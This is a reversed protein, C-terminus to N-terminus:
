VNCITKFKCYKCASESPRNEFPVEPDFIENVLEVIKERFGEFEHYDLCDRFTRDEKIKTFSFGDKKVNKITFIQPIIPEDTKNVISYIHCYFLLQFVGKPWKENEADFLADTDQVRIHETGTKYDIFRLVPVDAGELMVRDVRDIFGKINVKLGPALEFNGAIPYEGAEYTFYEIEEINAEAALVSDVVQTIVTALLAYEGKLSDIKLLHAPLKDADAKKLGYLNERLARVTEREIMSKKTGRLINIDKKRFTRIGNAMENDYLHQLVSHVITGYGSEQIFDKIDDNISYGAVKELFFRLPCEMYTKLYSASLYNGSKPDRFSALTDLIWKADKTVKIEGNDTSNLPYYDIHHIIRANGRKGYVYLLQYIYRSMEGSNGGRADYVMYLRKARGILRYFYYAHVNEMMESDPLGYERRMSMPIFSRLLQKRPLVRENAGLIILNEFDLARTELMGMIQIGELPEGTFHVADTSAIKRLQNLITMMDMAVEHETAYRELTDLGRVYSNAFAAEISDVPSLDRLCVLQARIQEFPNEFLDCSYAPFLPALTVGETIETEKILRSRPVEFLHNNSIQTVVNLCIEPHATRLTPHSFLAIVDKYYFEPDGNVPRSHEYMKQLLRFLSTFPSSKQPYAMTLNVKILNSDEELEEPPLNPNKYKPISDILPLVMIEEPVVIATQRAKEGEFEEAHAAVLKELLDAAKKVEGYHSPVGIIEIQPLSEPRLSDFDYNLSGDAPFRKKYERIKRAAPNFDGAFAASADDWYFSAAKRKHLYEFFKEQSLSLQNFGVFVFNMRSYASKELLSGSRMKEALRRYAMGNYVRGCSQLKEGFKRYLPYMLMWLRYFNRIVERNKEDYNIHNWLRDDNWFAVADGGWYSEIVAVQEESLFNASIEKFHKLNRFIEEPDALYLDVDNFDNLVMEGWPIFAELSLLDEEGGSETVLERYCNFLILIQETRSPVVSRTLEMVLSDIDTTAPLIMTKGALEVMYNSFFLEARKSPFVFCYDVLSGARESLYAEAIQKLFPIM